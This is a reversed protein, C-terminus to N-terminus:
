RHVSGSPTEYLARLTMSLRWSLDVFVFDLTRESERGECSRAVAPGRQGTASRGGEEGVARLEKGLDLDVLRHLVGVDDRELRAELVLAVDVHLELQAGVAHTGERGKKGRGSSGQRGGEHACDRRSRSRTRL